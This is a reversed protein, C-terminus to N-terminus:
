SERPPHSDLVSSIAQLLHRYPNNNSDLSAQMEKLAPILVYQSLEKVEEEELYQCNNLVVKLHDPLEGNLPLGLQNYRNSLEQMLSGREYNEDGWIYSSLYPTCIPALDFTRTFVEEIEGQSLRALERQLAELHKGSEPYFASLMKCSSDLVATFEPSPYELLNAILALAKTKPRKM